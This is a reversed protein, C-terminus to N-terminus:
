ASTLIGAPALDGASHTGSEYTRHLDIPQGATEILLDSTENKFEGSQVSVGNPRPSADTEGPNPSDLFNACFSPFSRSVGSPSANALGPSQTILSGLVQPNDASEISVRLLDGVQVAQRGGFTQLDTLTAADIADPTLIFPQSLYVNYLPSNVDDSMRRAVQATVMPQHGDVGASGPSDTLIVPANNTGRPPLRLGRADTADIALRIQSGADGNADVRVYFYREPPPPQALAGPFQPGLSSDRRYYFIRPRRKRWFTTSPRKM